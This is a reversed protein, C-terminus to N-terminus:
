SIIIFKNRTPFHYSYLYRTIRPHHYCRWAECLSEHHSYLKLSLSIAHYASNEGRKSRSLRHCTTAFWRRRWARGSLIFAPLDVFKKSVLSLISAFKQTTSSRNGMRNPSVSFFDILSTVSYIRAPSVFKLIRAYSIMACLYIYATFIVDYDCLQSNDLIHEIM